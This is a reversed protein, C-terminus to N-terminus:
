AAKLVAYRGYQGLPGSKPKSADLLTSFTVPASALQNGSTIMQLQQLLGASTRYMEVICREGNEALNIGKYRLAYTEREGALFAVQEVAGHSYAAKLPMTPAPAAPLSLIKVDGYVDYDYHVGRVLTAPTPTLSDTLVLNTVNMHDLQVVNGAVLPTPFAEATVTGAPLPTEKGLTFMAVNKTNLRHLTLNWDIGLETHFERVKAKMGSFSERHTIATQSLAGDMTSVDGLWIWPGQVGAASIKAVEVEGQGYFYSDEM